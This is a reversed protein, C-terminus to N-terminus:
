ETASVLGARRNGLCFRGCCLPRTACWLVGFLSLWGEIGGGFTGAPMKEFLLHGLKPLFIHQAWPAGFVCRGARVCLRRTFRRSLLMNFVILDSFM